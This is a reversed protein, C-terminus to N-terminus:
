KQATQEQDYWGEYAEQTERQAKNKEIIPLLEFKVEQLLQNTKFSLKIFKGKKGSM